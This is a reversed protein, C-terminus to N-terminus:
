SSRACTGRLMARDRPSPGAIEAVERAEPNVRARNRLRVATQEAAGEAEVAVAVMVAAEKEAM